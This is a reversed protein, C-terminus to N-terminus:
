ILQKCIIIWFCFNAQTPNLGKDYIRPYSGTFLQTDPKIIIGYRQLEALSCPLLKLLGVRGALTQTVSHMM